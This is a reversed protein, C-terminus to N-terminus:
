PTRAFVVRDPPGADYDLRRRGMWALAVIGDTAVDRVVDLGQRNKKRDGTKDSKTARRRRGSPVSEDESIVESARAHFLEGSRAGPASRTTSREESTMPDLAHGRREAVRALLDANM